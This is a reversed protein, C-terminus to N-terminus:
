IEEDEESLSWIEEQLGNKMSTRFLEEIERHNKMNLAKLALEELESIAVSRILKKIHPIFAPPMSFIRLGFGLLILVGIPITAMDGCISVDIGAKKGETICFHIMRLVGPHLPRYLYAINDNARDVALSYQILDNSGISFFDAEKALIDSIMCSSPLEMMTGIEINDPVEHGEATLEESCEWFVDKAESLEDLCSILPFMIKLPIDPFNCHARLIGRIQSKLLKRSKLALRISRLGLAPNAEQSFSGEIPFKDGGLDFTRITVPGSKWGSFLNITDSYHLEESFSDKQNSLFLFETRYLGIGEAGHSLAKASEESFDINAYISIPIGDTTEAKTHSESILTQEIAYIRQMNKRHQKVRMVDPNIIVEGTNGNVLILDGNKVTDLIGKASVVTPIEFAKAIIVTHSTSGGHETVISSIANRGLQITEVPSLESAVVIADVPPNFSQCDQGSMNRLLRYTIFRLDNLRENLYENEERLFIQEWKELIRDIAWEANILESKITKTVDKRLEDDKLMMRHAELIHGPDRYEEGIRDRVQDIQQASKEVAINFRQIELPVETEDIARKTVSIDKQQVIYARGISLGPVVGKGSIFINQESM